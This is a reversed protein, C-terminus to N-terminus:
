GVVAPFVLPKATFIRCAYCYAALYHDYYTGLEQEHKGFDALFDEFLAKAEASIEFRPAKPRPKKATAKRPM